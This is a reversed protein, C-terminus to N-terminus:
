HSSHDRGEVAERILDEWDNPPNEEKWAEVDPEYVQEYFSDWSEFFRTHPFDPTPRSRRCWSLHVLAFGDLTELLLDDSDSRIALTRVVKGYLPHPETLEAQLQDNFADPSDTPEWPEEFIFDPTVLSAKAERPWGGQLPRTAREFRGFDVPVSPPGLSIERSGM